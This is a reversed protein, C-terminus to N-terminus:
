RFFPSFHTRAIWGFVLSIQCCVLQFRRNDTGDFSGRNRGRSSRGKTLSIRQIGEYM